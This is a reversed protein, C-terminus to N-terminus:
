TKTLPISDWIPKVRGSWQQPGTRTRRDVTQLATRFIHLGTREGPLLFVGLPFFPLPIRASRWTRYTLPCHQGQLANLAVAPQAGDIEPDDPLSNLPLGGDRSGLEVQLVQVSQDRWVEVTASQGPRFRSVRELLEPLTPTPTGAVSLIVDGPLMGAALAGSADETVGAVLVGSM